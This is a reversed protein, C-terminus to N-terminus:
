PPGRSGGQSGTVTRAITGAPLWVPARRGRECAAQSSVARGPHGNILRPSARQAFM